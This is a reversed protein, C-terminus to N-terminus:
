ILGEPLEVVMRGEAVDIELIVSEIAPLLIEDVPYEKTAEVVYVDNAGTPIIEKIRGLREGQVSHVTMGILDVWYHTDDDLSPLQRRPIMLRSGTLSEAQDRSTVDELALRVINNKHPKAWLRKFNRHRGKDDVLIFEDYRDLDATSEAYAYVKVVGRIGHAGIIKGM